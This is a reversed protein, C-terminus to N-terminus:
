LIKGVCIFLMMSVDAYVFQNWMKYKLYIYYFIEMFCISIDENSIGHRMPCDTAHRVESGPTALKIGGRDWVKTSISSSIIEITM